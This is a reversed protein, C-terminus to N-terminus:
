QLHEHDWNNVVAYLLSPTWFGRGGDVWLFSCLRSFSCEIKFIGLRHVQALTPQEGGDDEKEGEEVVKHAEELESNLDKDINM